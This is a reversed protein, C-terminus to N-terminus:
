RYEIQKVKKRKIGHNDRGYIKLKLKDLNCLNRINRIQNHNYNYKILIRKRFYINLNLNNIEFYSFIFKLYQEYNLTRKLASSPLQPKM